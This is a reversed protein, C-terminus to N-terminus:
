NPGEQLKGWDLAQVVAEEEEPHDEQAELHDVESDEVEEV